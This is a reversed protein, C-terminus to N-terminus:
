LAGEMRDRRRASRERKVDREIRNTGSAQTLYSANWCKKNQIRM